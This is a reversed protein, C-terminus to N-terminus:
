RPLEVSAVAQAAIGEKRGEFGLRETTTAKISIRAPDCALVRAMAERMAGAHPSVKPAECIITVDAGVLRGGRERVLDGAHRLFTSSPEGRWREDTPPFHRGIDGAGLAGYIADTLAHMAVDADSHGKLGDTHPIRVGGLTVHDGPEFAHVDYGLGTRTEVPLAGLLAEAMAFDEKYTLKVNRPNGRVLAVPTGAAELLSADDTAIGPAAARHARLIAEYRFGQPTQARWLGDRSRTGTSVGDEGRKLTDSVPLACIAGDQDSLAVLVADIEAATM